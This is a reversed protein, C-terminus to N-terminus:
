YYSGTSHVQCARGIGLLDIAEVTKRDGAEAACRRWGVITNHVRFGIMYRGRARDQEAMDKVVQIAEDVTM